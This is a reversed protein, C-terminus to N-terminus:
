RHLPFNVEANKKCILFADVLGRTEEPNLTKELNDVLKKIQKQNQENNKMTLTYGSLFQGLQPFM